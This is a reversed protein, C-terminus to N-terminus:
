IQGIAIRGASGGAGCKTTDGCKSRSSSTIQKNEKVSEYLVFRKLHLFIESSYVADRPKEEVDANM